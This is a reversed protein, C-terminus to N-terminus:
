ESDESDYDDEDEWDTDEGYLACYEQTMREAKFLCRAARERARLVERKHLMRRTPGVQMAEQNSEQPIEDVERLEETPQDEELQILVKEDPKQDVLTWEFLFVEKSITLRQMQWTCTGEFDEAVDQLKHQLRTTLWEVTLPKSFWAHTATVIQKPFEIGLTLPVSTLPPSYTTADDKHSEYRLGEHIDSVYVKKSADYTPKAFKM